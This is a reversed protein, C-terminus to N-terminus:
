RVYIKTAKLQKAYQQQFAAIMAAGRKAHAKIEAVHDGSRSARDGARTMGFLQSAQTENLGLINIAIRMVEGPGPVASSTIAPHTVAYVWGAVCGITGCEPAYRGRQDLMLVSWQNYRKPEQLILRRVYSLVGYATKATLQLRM